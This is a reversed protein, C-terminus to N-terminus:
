AISGVRNYPNDSVSNHTEGPAMMNGAINQKGGLLTQTIEPIAALSNDQPYNGEESIGGALHTLDESYDNTKREYEQGVQALETEAAVTIPETTAAAIEDSIRHKACVGEMHGQTAADEEGCRVEWDDCTDVVDLVNKLKLPPTQDIRESFPM